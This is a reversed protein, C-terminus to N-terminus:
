SARTAGPTCRLADESAGRIQRVKRVCTGARSVPVLSGAAGAGAVGRATEDKKNQLELTSLISMTLAATVPSVTTLMAQRMCARTQVFSLLVHSRSTSSLAGSTVCTHRAAACVRVGICTAVKTTCAYGSEGPARRYVEWVSVAVSDVTSAAKQSGM